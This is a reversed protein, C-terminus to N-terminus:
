CHGVKRLEYSALRYTYYAVDVGRAMPAKNFSPTAPTHTGSSEPKGAHDIRQFATMGEFIMGAPERAAAFKDVKNSARRFEKFAM